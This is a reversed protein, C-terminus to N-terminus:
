GACFRCVWVSADGMKQRRWLIRALCRVGDNPVRPLPASSDLLSSSSEAAASLNSVWRQLAVCEQKHFTWDVSQCKQQSLNSISYLVARYKPGVSDCYFVVKCITCRKLPESGPGFCSSCYDELHQISLAAVNPKVSLLVDGLTTFHTFLFTRFSLFFEGPKRLFKSFVGRGRGKEDNSVRVELASNLSRYLDGTEIVTTVAQSTEANSINAPSDTTPVVDSSSSAVSGHSTSGVYSKTERLKRAAKLKSFESM